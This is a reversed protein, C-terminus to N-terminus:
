AVTSPRGARVTRVRGAVTLAIGFCFLLLAARGHEVALVVPALLLRTAGRLVAHRAVLDALPPSLRYYLAVFLRGPPNTLLYHDRFARLLAM